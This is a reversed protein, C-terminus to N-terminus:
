STRAFVSRAVDMECYSFVSLPCHLWLQYSGISELWWMSVSKGSIGVEGVEEECCEERRGCCWCWCWWGEWCEWGSVKGGVGM